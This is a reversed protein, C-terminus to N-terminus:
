AQCTPCSSRPKNKHLSLISLGSSSHKMWCKCCVPLLLPLSDTKQGENEQRWKSSWRSKRKKLNRIQWNVPRLSVSFDASLDNSQRTEWSHNCSTPLYTMAKNTVRASCSLDEVWFTPKWNMNALRKNKNELLRVIKRKEEKTFHVINYASSWLSHKSWAVSFFGWYGAMFKFSKLLTLIKWISFIPFTAIQFFEAFKNGM